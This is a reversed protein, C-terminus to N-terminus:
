QAKRQTGLDKWLLVSRSRSGHPSELTKTRWILANAFTREGASTAGHCASDRELGWLRLSRISALDLRTVAALVTTLNRVLWGRKSNLPMAGRYCLFSVEGLILSNRDLSMTAHLINIYCQPPPPLLKLTFHAHTLHM